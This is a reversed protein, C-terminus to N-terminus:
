ARLHAGVIRPSTWHLFDESEILDDTLAITGASLEDFFAQARRLRMGDITRSAAVDIASGIGFPVLQILARVVHNDYLAILKDNVNSM